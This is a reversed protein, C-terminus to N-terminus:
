LTPAPLATLLTQARSRGPIKDWLAEALRIGGTTRPGVAWGALLHSRLVLLAVTRLQPHGAAGRSSGPRGFEAENEPTDAMRLTAGDVGYSALGRWRQEEASARAVQARDSRRQPSGRRLSEGRTATDARVADQGPVAGGLRDVRGGLIM